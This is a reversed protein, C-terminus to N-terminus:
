FVFQLRGEVANYGKGDKIAGHAWNLRALIYKNIGYNLGVTIDNEATEYDEGYNYAIHGYRAVLELNKPSVNTAYGNSMSYNQKDGILLFGSQVYFGGVEYNDSGPTNIHAHQYRGEAYLKGKVFICEAEGRFINYQEEDSFSQGVFAFSRAQTLSYTNFSASNPTHTLLPAVGFHLVTGEEVVPRVIVKAAVNYGQNQTIANINGDSFIGATFKLFDSNYNYAIGMKRSIGDVCKDISSNQIFRYQPGLTEYGFPMWFNGVQLSSQESMKYAFYVDTFTTSSGTFKVEVKASWKDDMQAIFGLRTDNLRVVNTVHDHSNKGLDGGYIGMDVHTRGKLNIKLDGSQTAISIQSHAAVSSM